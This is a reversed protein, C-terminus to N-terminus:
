PLTRDLLLVVTLWIILPLVVVGGLLWGIRREEVFLMLAGVFVPTIALFGFRAMTWLAAMTAIVFLSVRFLESFGVSTTGTPLLIQVIGLFVFLIACANPITQPRMWGYDVIETHAPIIMFYLLLGLTVVFAGSLRNLLM